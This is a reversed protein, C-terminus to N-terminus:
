ATITTVPLPSLGGAQKGLKKDFTAFSTAGPDAAVLHIMDPLDAGEAYRDLSWELAEDSPFSIGNMERLLKLAGVVKFRPLNASRELVWCLEVLVSWSVCCLNEQVMREAIAQQGPDDGLLLRALVSTDLAIV